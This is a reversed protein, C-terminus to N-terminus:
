MSRDRDRTRARRPPSMTLDVTKEPAVMRSALREFLRANASMTNTPDAAPTGSTRPSRKLQKDLTQAFATTVTPVVATKLGTSVLARDANLVLNDQPDRKLANDLDLCILHRVIYQHLKEDTMWHEARYPADKAWARYGDIIDTVPTAVTYGKETPLYHLLAYTTFRMYPRSSQPNLGESAILDRTESILQLEKPTRTTTM